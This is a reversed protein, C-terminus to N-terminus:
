KKAGKREAAIWADVDAELVSLPVAGGDIVVNHFRRLDFGEGLAAHAKARLAKIKLEGVKYATAQGPWVIYRDVEATTSELTEGTNSLMYDIAQERTWGFAHIGTDVVLRCARLMEASLNGFKQYPDKYFGMEDGLSEAYLAWGEGYATFWLNRRFQPLDHIEQARAIQLHHGPVAEHLLLTEMSWKPRTKLNNVNAEFYGARSGDAAGPTYHEANDGEEPRMARIGYPQRPLQAFFKPLEADARKAIDRYGALMAEPDTFFFRPDTVLFQRFEARTGKFGTDRMIADMRAGIRAVERMGLDHIERPTLETTTAEALLAQYYSLGAPLQSVGIGDRAGPLYREEYFAKLSRFAPIVHDRIVQRGTSALRERDSPAFDSPFSKFPAYEPSKEPDPDTQAELQQPVRAIAIKPLVWGGALAIQMREILQRIVVPVAELRKIYNEYDKVSTFRTARVLVPLDHHIGDMQTVPAWSDLDSFPASGFLKDVAIRREIRFKLVELSTRDGASLRKGDVQDLRRLFAPFFAKRRAVAEPSSDTLRDDYRHDGLFTAYTPYERMVWEWYEDFLPRATEAAPTTKVPEAALALGSFAFVLVLAAFLKIRGM